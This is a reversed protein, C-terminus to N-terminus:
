LSLEKVEGQGKHYHISVFEGVQPIRTLASRAHVVARSPSLSQVVYDTNVWITKGFYTGAESPQCAEATASLFEHIKEEAQKYGASAFDHTAPRLTQGSRAKELLDEKQNTVRYQILAANLTRTLLDEDCPKTLFRFVNGENVAKAATEQDSNGTLMIRVSEPFELRIKTLLRVGDMEPMRMDCVVVAYPGNRKLKALAEAGSVATEIQFAPSLLRQFGELLQPEDDVFLIRERVRDELRVVSM